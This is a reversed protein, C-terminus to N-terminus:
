PRTSFIHVSTETAPFASGQKLFEVHGDMYAVNLGAQRHPFAGGPAAEFMLPIESQAAASGAPNNIDTIFFREIGERQRPLPGDPTLLDQDFDAKALKRLGRELAQADQESKVVWGTYVYSKAAIRTMAEWDPPTQAALRNLEEVLDGSDPLSPNVLVSLDTLYEPYVTELDFMWLGEYPTLPPYLEKPSENAYMKMVLAIQKLNNQSSARRAAQRAAERARSLAPMLVAIVLVAAAALAGYQLLRRMAKRQRRFMPAAEAEVAAIVRDALGEPPEVEPLDDLLDLAARQRELDERWEASRALEGEVRETEVPSLTGLLYERLLRSRETDSSRHTM